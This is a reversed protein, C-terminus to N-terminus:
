IVQSRRELLLVDRWQGNMKGLRERRGVIRFGNFEHVKNSAANEPFVGSQLTWINQSESAQILKNLLLKGIGKGQFDSAVYVSVEAVGAYVCRSSVGSLAAWGVVIDKAKCILRPLKLHGNDWDTWSPIVTNFTANGSAIGQGYIKAVEPWDSPNMESIEFM